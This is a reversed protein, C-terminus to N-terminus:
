TRWLLVGAAIRAADAAGLKPRRHLTDYGLAEIKDLIRVGGLWTARLELRLRGGVVTPRGSPGARVAPTDTGRLGAGGGGVSSDDGPWRSRAGDRRAAASRRGARLPPREALGDRLGALLEGAAPRHVGRGVRRRSRRRRNRRGAAGATRRSEGIAPLLRARRGVDRLPPRYRGAPLRQASGRVAAVPLQHREITDRLAVFM